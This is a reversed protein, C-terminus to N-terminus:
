AFEGASGGVVFFLGTGPDRALCLLYRQGVQLQVPRSQSGRGDPQWVVIRRASKGRIITDTDVTVLSAPQSTPASVDTGRSTVTAVVFVQTAALLQAVSGYMTSDAIPGPRAHVRAPTTSVSSACAGATMCSFLVALAGLRRSM